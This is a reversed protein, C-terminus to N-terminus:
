LIECWVSVDHANVSSSALAHQSLITARYLLASQRLHPIPWSTAEKVLLKM